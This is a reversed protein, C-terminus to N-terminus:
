FYKGKIFEFFSSVEFRMQRVAEDVGLGFEVEDHVAVRDLSCKPCPQKTTKKQQMEAEETEIEPKKDDNGQGEKEQDGDGGGAEGGDENKEEFEVM